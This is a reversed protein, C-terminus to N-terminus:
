IRKKRIARTEKLTNNEVLTSYFSSRQTYSMGTLPAERLVLYALKLMEIRTGTSSHIDNKGITINQEAVNLSQNIRAKFTDMTSYATFFIIAISLTSIAVLTINLRDKYLFGSVILLIPIAIIAGKTATSFATFTSLISAVIILALIIKNQTFQTISTLLLFM